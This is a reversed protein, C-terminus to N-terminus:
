KVQGLLINLDGKAVAIDLLSKWVQLHAHAIGVEASLLEYQGQALRTYDVLGSQYSLKLGDYAFSSAQVQVQTQLAIEKNREYGMMATQLQKQVDLAAQSAMAEDSKLLSRVQKKQMNVQSFRLIPFSLQFGMGYNTRSLNFGDAKDVVGNAAVGSGRAYGNGWIDLRPRWAVQIEKLSATSVQKVSQYYQLVPNNNGGAATDPLAPYMAAMATDSLVIAEPSQPLGALRALEILQSEYGKQATLYSVRAQALLSQFQITDIGPKLGQRALELSQALISQVRDINAQLGALLQHYYVADIYTYLAVYQQRFLEQNYAANALQFQATAKEVAASRQGFTFPNWTVLATLASGPVFNITNNVSPPGSIPMALGPYSMGTINNYTAYNAQYGATLEPLLTNKSLHISQEAATAKEKYSQLRYQNQQVLVTAQKLSVITQQGM